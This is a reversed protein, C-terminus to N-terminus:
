APLREPRSPTARRFLWRAFRVSPQDFARMALEACYLTVPLLVIHPVLFAVELGLPGAMPLPFMNVLDLMNTARYDNVWGVAAYLRDGLTCIILGHILYLSYSVRGFFQCFRTEFFRCLWPIHRVSVVLFTAAWFLFFWKYNSVVHPKLFSIYYWGGPNQRLDEISDTRASIGGLYISVLFMAYFIAKKYPQLPRFIPPLEGARALLDLDCLLTGSTFMSLYWGDVIYLFYFVLGAQLCLRATQTCASLALLSTCVVISGRFEIPISWLHFNYLEAWAALEEGYTAKPDASAIPVRFIHWSTMYIFTTCLIPIYLRLWRRFLASSLHNALKGHEGQHILDVAKVSLVFGSIVFFTAVAFHGGYFFTRIGPLAAFYYQGEYGYATELFKSQELPRVWLQHHHPASQATDDRPPSGQSSVVSTHAQQLQDMLYYEPTKWRLM